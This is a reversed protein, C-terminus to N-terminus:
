DNPSYRRWREIMASMDAPIDCTFFM